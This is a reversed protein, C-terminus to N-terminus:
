QITWLTHFEEKQIHVLSLSASFGLPQNLYQPKKSSVRELIYLCGEMDPLSNTEPCGGGAGVGWGAWQELREIFHLLIQM